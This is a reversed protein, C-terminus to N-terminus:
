EIAYSHLTDTQNNKPRQHLAINKIFNEGTKIVM